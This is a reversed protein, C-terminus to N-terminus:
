ARDDAREARQRRLREQRVAELDDDDDSDEEEAPAKRAAFFAALKDKESEAAPAEPPEAESM